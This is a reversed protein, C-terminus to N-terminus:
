NAGNTASQALIVVKERCFNKVEGIGGHSTVGGGGGWLFNEIITPHGSGGRKYM